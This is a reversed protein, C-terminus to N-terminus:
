SYPYPKESHASQSIGAPSRAPLVRRSSSRSSLSSSPAAFYRCSFYGMSGPLLERRPSFGCGSYARPATSRRPHGARISSRLRAFAASASPPRLGIVDLLLSFFNFIRRACRNRASCFVFITECVATITFKSTSSLNRREPVAFVATGGTSIVSKLASLHFCIDYQSITTRHCFFDGSRFVLRKGFQAVANALKHPFPVRHCSSGAELRLLIQEQQRKAPEGSAHFRGNARQRVAQRHLMVACHLEDVSQLSVTVHAAAAAPVVAPSDQHRQQRPSLLQKFLHRSVTDALQACASGRQHLGDACQQFIAISELGPFFRSNVCSLIPAVLQSADARCICFSLSPVRFVPRWSSNPSKEVVERVIEIEASAIPM